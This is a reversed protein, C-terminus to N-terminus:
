EGKIAAEIRAIATDIFGTHERGKVAYKAKKLTDAADSLRIKLRAVEAMLEVIQEDRGALNTVEDQERQQYIGIQRTLRAVEAAHDAYAEVNWAARNMEIQLTPHDRGIGRLEFALRKPEITSNAVPESM